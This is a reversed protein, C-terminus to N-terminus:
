RRCKRRYLGYGALNLLAIGFLTVSAPEPAANSQYQFNPGFQVYDAFGGNVTGLYTLDTTGPSLYANTFHITGVAPDTSYSSSAAASYEPAVAGAPFLAILTYANGASLTVPTALNEYRFQNSLTSTPSISVSAILNASSDFIGVKTGSPITVGNGDWTGLATVVLQQNPTFRWGIEFPNPPAGDTLQNPSNITVATVFGAQASAPAAALIALLALGCVARMM